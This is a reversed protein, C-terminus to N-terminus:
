QHRSAKAAIPWCEDIELGVATSFTKQQTHKNSGQAAQLCDVAVM